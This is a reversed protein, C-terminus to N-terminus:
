ILKKESCRRPKKETKLHLSSISIQETPKQINGKKELQKNIIFLQKEVFIRNPLYIKM